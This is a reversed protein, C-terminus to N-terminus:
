ANNIKAEAPVPGSVNFQGALIPEYPFQINVIVGQQSEMSFRGNLQRALGQMLSVGLSQNAAIDFAPPLGKGNDAITLLIDQGAQQMSITIVGQRNGPFAYKIANTIAENLILGLPVAQAIELEIPTIHSVFKVRNNINFNDDLYNTLERIYAQMDISAMKDSQYLKQHILSMARLRHQSDRIALIASDNDLYASQTNLLSMVIQLNNNVRHHIEKLLWEKEQLLGDKEAVLKQLSKNKLNIESQQIELQRNSRQRLRYRNYLLAIIVLLLTIISITVKKVLSAQKLQLQSERRLLQINKEKKDTEYKAQIEEIQRSQAINFMTDNITKYRQFHTLASKFNGAASDARYLLLQVNKQSAHSVFGPTNAAEMLYHRSKEFQQRNSYFRGINYYTRFRMSFGHPSREECAVADLYHKEALGYQQLADYCEGLMTAAVQKDDDVAAPYNKITSSALDMAEQNRGLLLLTGIVNNTVTYLEFTKKVQKQLVRDLTKYQLELCKDLQGLDKYVGALRTYFLNFSATDRFTEATQVSTLAFQLAQSLNGRARCVVVLLDTTKQIEKIGAAQQLDLLKYLEKEALDMRDQRIYLTAQKHLLSAQTAASDPHLRASQAFTNQATTLLLSALIFCTLLWHKICIAESVPLSAPLHPRSSTITQPNTM